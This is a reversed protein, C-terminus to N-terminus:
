LREIQTLIKKGYILVIQSDDLELDKLPIFFSRSDSDAFYIYFGTQSNFYINLGRYFFVDINKENGSVDEFLIDPFEPYRNKIFSKFFVTPCIIDMRKNISNDLISQLENLLIM